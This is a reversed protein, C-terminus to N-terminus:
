EEIEKRVEAKRRVPIWLPAFAVVTANAQLGFGELHSLVAGFTLSKSVVDDIILLSEIPALNGDFKCQIARFGDDVSRSFGAKFQPNKTFCDTLDLVEPVKERVAEL